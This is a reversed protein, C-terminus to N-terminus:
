RWQVPPQQPVELYPLTPGKATSGTPQTPAAIPTNDPFESEVNRRPATQSRWWDDSSPRNPTPTAWPPQYAGNSLVRGQRFPDLQPRM